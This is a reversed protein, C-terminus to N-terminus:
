ADGGADDSAAEPEAVWAAYHAGFGRTVVRPGEAFLHRGRAFARARLEHRRAEIALLVETTASALGEPPAHEILALRLDDLDHEDGLDETLAELSRELSRMVEPWLRELLRVHYFHHKAFKRWEHLHETTPERLARALARRGRRYNKRFGGRMLAWGDRELPWSGVAALSRRLAEAVARAHDEGRMVAILRDRECVLSARLAVRADDDVLGPRRAFLADFAGVVAAARRPGALERGADRYCANERAFVETGLSTQVLRLLGRLKKMRKRVSHVHQDVDSTAALESLARELQERAIRRTADASSEDRRFSYDM